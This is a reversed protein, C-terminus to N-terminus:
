LHGWWMIVDSSDLAEDSLGGDPDTLRGRTALCGSQRSLQDALAGDVDDPYVSRPATGECWIRVRIPGGACPAQAGHVVAARLLPIAPLARAIQRVFSRRDVHM